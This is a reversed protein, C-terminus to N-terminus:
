EGSKNKQADLDPTRSCTKVQVRLNNSYLASMSVELDSGAIIIAAKNIKGNVARAYGKPPCVLM